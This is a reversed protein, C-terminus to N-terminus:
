PVRLRYFFSSDNPAIPVFNSFRGLADFGGSKLPTWNNIPQSPDGTGLITFFGGPPGVGEMLFYNGAVEVTSIMVPIAIVEISFPQTADISAANSATITGNFVGPASPIGTIVGAASIQLGTPLGTASFTISATGDAAGTHSYPVGLTSLSAPAASTIAPPAIVEISFSQTANPATGNSATITGNFEGVATPIGTIVGATSIQLGTPLGPASFTIPTTGTATCTHSYSVGLTAISAPAASTIAPPEAAPIWTVSLDSHHLAEGEYHDPYDDKAFPASGKTWLLTTLPGQGDDEEVYQVWFKYNGDPVLNNNKDRCNWTLEIPNNPPTDSSGYNKATAGSYGDVTTDSGRASNWISFHENWRGSSFGPGQKWLTRIFQDSSSTVWVVTYHNDGNGPYDHISADLAATGDTQASASATLMGLVFGACSLHTKFFPTM